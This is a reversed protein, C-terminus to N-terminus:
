FELWCDAPIKELLYKKKLCVCPETDADYYLTPKIIYEKLLDVIDKKNSIKFLTQVKWWVGKHVRKNKPPVIREIIKAVCLRTENYLTKDYYPYTSNMLVRKCNKCFVIDGPKM